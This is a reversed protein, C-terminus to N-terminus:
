PVLKPDNIIHTDLLPYVIRGNDRFLYRIPMICDARVDNYEWSSALLEYFLADDDTVLVPEVFRVIGSALVTDVDECNGCIVTKALLGIVFILKIGSDSKLVEISDVILMGQEPLVKSIRGKLDHIHYHRVKKDSTASDMHKPVPKRKATRNMIRTEDDTLCFDPRNRWAEENASKDDSLFFALGYQNRFFPKPEQYSSKYEKDITM